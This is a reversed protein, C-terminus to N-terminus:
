VDIEMNQDTDSGRYVWDFDDLWNELEPRTDPHVKVVPNSESDERVFSLGGDDDEAVRIVDGTSDVGLSAWKTTPLKEENILEVLRALNHPELVVQPGIPNDETRESRFMVDGDAYLQVWFRGIDVSGIQSETLRRANDGM